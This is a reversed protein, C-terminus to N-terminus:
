EKNLSKIIEEKEEENANKIIQLADKLVKAKTALSFVNRSKFSSLIVAALQKSDQYLM